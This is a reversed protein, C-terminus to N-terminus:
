ASTSKSSLATIPEVWGKVVGVEGLLAELEAVRREKEEVDRLLSEERGSLEAVKIRHEELSRMTKEWQKRHGQLERELSGM